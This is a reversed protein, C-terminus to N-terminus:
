PARDGRSLLSLVGASPRAQPPKEAVEAWHRCIFGFRERQAPALEDLADPQLSAFLGVIRDLTTIPM